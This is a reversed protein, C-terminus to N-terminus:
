ENSASEGRGLSEEDVPRLAVTELARPLDGSDIRYTGVLNGYRDHLTLTGETLDVNPPLLPPRGAMAAQTQLEDIRKELQHLREILRVRADVAQDLEESFAILTPDEDSLPSWEKGKVISRLVDAAAAM